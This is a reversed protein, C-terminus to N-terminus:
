IYTNLEGTMNVVVEGSRNVINPQHGPNSPVSYTLDMYTPGSNNLQSSYFGGTHSTSNQSSDSGSYQSVNYSSQTHSMTNADYTPYPVEYNYSNQGVTRSGGSTSLDMPMDFGTTNDTHENAEGEMSTGPDHFNTEVSSSTSQGKGMGNPNSNETTEFVPTSRKPPEGSNSKGPIDQPDQSMPPTKEINKSLPPSSGTKSVNGNVPSSEKSGNNKNLSSKTKEGNNKKGNPKSSGATANDDPPASSSAGKKKKPTSANLKFPANKQLFPSLYELYLIVDNLSANV